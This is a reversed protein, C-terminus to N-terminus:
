KKCPFAANLAAFAIVDAPHHLLKPNDKMFEEVILRAQEGTIGNPLCSVATLKQRHAEAQADFFGTSFGLIWMNCFTQNTLNDRDNCADYLVNGTLGEEAGAPCAIVLCTLIFALRKM